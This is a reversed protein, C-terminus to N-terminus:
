EGIYNPVLTRWNNPLEYLQGGNNLFDDLQWDNWGPVSNDFGHNTMAYITPHLYLKTCRPYVGMFWNTDDLRERTPNNYFVTLGDPNLTDSDIRVWNYWGSANHFNNLVVNKVQRTLIGGSTVDWLQGGDSLSYSDLTCQWDDYDRIYPDDCYRDIVGLYQGGADFAVIWPTNSDYVDENHKSELYHNEYDYYVKNNTFCIRYWNHDYNNPLDPILCWEIDYYGSEQLQLTYLEFPGYCNYGLDEARQLLEQPTPLTMTSWQSDSAKKYRIRKISNIATSQRPDGECMGFNLAYPWINFNNYTKGDQEVINMYIRAKITRVAAQQTVSYNKTTGQYTITGTKTVDSSTLNTGINTTIEDDQWYPLEAITTNNKKLRIYKGGTNTFTDEYWKLTMGNQEINFYNELWETENVTYDIVHPEYYTDWTSDQKALMTQHLEENLYITEYIGSEDSKDGRGTIDLANIIVRDKGWNTNRHCFYGINANPVWAMVTDGGCSHLFHIENSITAPDIVTTFKTSSVNSFSCDNMGWRANTNNIYLQYGDYMEGFNMTFPVDTPEVFISNFLNAFAYNAIRIQGSQIGFYPLWTNDLMTIKSYGSLTMQQINNPPPLCESSQVQYAIDYERMTQTNEDYKYVSM